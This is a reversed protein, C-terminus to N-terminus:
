PVGGETVSVKAGDSLYAGGRVVVSAQAVLGELVLVREDRVEGLRVETRTATKKDASLVYVTARGANAEVLAGVPISLAQAATDAKPSIQARGILGSALRAKSAALQLEVEFLGTQPNASGPLTSVVAPFDQNPLVDFHVQAPDGLNLRLADRDSLALKLVKGGDDRSVSLVPAAPAIVEREEAFRRLVTGAGSAEIRAFEANFNMMTLGARAMDLATLADDLQAKAVVDQAYLTKARQYDREAKRLQERMQQVNASVETPDLEALLQGKAVTEGVDVYIKRIVGGTKFSLRMEDHAALVGTAHIKAAETVALAPAVEVPVPAIASPTEVSKGCAALLASSLLLLTFKHM